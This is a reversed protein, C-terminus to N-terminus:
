PYLLYLQRIKNFEELGKIWTEKIQKETWGLEIQKRLDKTGSLQDFFSNFFPKKKAAYQRYSDILYSLNLEKGFTSKQMDWGFCKTNEHKPYKAGSVSIPTFSFGCSDLIPSGLIQFQYKTGRGVSLDTGEFLCLSPYLSISQSNPLNPSPKIPLKYQIQRNYNQMEQWYLQCQLSDSLWYEGNIM